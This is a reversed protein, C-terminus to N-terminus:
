SRDERKKGRLQGCAANIDAGRRERIAATIGMQQIKAFFIKISESDSACIGAETVNNAPIINLLIDEGALLVALQEADRESDNIGAFLAYEMTVRRGTAKRFYRCSALLEPLSHRAAVPMLRARKKEDAAHLSVALGIQLGWDALEYIQPALGCTSVTIRRQGINQGEAANLLLIAQKLNVLNALPEGMGMFVVNSVGSYGMERAIKAAILVQAVMEGASLNRPHKFLGSACFICGMACGSQSSVCCTARDRSKERDYLMLVTEIQESDMLSLLLKITDGKRAEQRQMILPANIQTESALRQQLSKPLNSMAAFESVGKQQLWSFLQRARYSPEQWTALLASLAVADMSLLEPKNM